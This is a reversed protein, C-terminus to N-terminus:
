RLDRKIGRIIRRLEELTSVQVIERKYVAAGRVGRLYWAAHRRAELCALREGRLEASLEIQRLATDMREALPPLDPVPKGAVAASGRSFIWPDGFAGRGVM